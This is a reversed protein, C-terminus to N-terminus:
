KQYRITGQVMVTQVKLDFDLVLLDADKGPAISGKQDDIKLVQAPTLSAMRITEYLECSTKHFMTSVVRDMTAVSGAFATRDLLKAVGDEVICETGTEKAGLIYKGDPMGAARMSDTILCIKEAGKIRYIMELLEKPLHRGDAIVEVFLDKLLYGAEVAGAIRFGNERHVSDMGSYFHTLLTIGKDYAEMVQGCTASSHALAAVVHHSRLTKLFEDSGPLEPAFSWRLIHDTNQLIKLYEKPDPNRLWRPDQAGCQERSFYPGELHIGLIHPMDERCRDVEGFLQIFNYISEPSATLATPVISTTGHELHCRCAQYISNVDGDMFDSGGAGHTHLDIFGPSLYKGDLDLIEDAEPVKGGQPVIDTIIGDSVKIGGQRIGTPFIINANSLFITGM